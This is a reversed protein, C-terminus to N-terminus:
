KLRLRVGAAILLTGLILYLLTPLQGTRPLSGGASGSPVEELDIEVIKEETSGDPKQIIVTFRDKKTDGSPKYEWHGDPTISVTGGTPPTKLTVTGGSTPIDGSTTKGDSSSDTPNTPTPTPATDGGPAPKTPVATPETSSPGETGGDNTHGPAQANVATLTYIFKLAGDELTDGEAIVVKQPTADKIYGSPAKTETVTYTGYPLAVRATGTADTVVTHLLQGTENAIEFTAGQLARTEDEKARKHLELTRYRANFAEVNLAENSNVSVKIAEKSLHYGEPAEIETLIYTAYRLKDMSLQGNADTKLTGLELTGGDSQQKVIKFVAGAVPKGQDDKKTLTFSGLNGVAWGSSELISHSIRKEMERTGTEVRTGKVHASNSFTGSVIFDEIIRTKYEFTYVDKIVIGERAAIEFSQPDSILARPKVTVEFVDQMAGDLVTGDRRVVFSDEILELGENLTDEIVLNEISSKSENVILTWTIENAGSTRTGDKTIFTTAKPHAVVATYNEGSNTQATNTYQEKSIGMLETSYTIRYAKNLMSAWKIQFSHNDADPTVTIGRAAWDGKPIETAGSLKLSGTAPDVTDEYLRISDPILRLGNGEADVPIADTVTFDKLHKALYNLDIQWDIQRRDIDLTGKKSGNYAFLDKSAVEAQASKLVGAANGQWAFHSYNMYDLNGSNSLVDPDVTTKFDVTYVANNVTKLFTLKFGKIPESGSVAAGSLNLPSVTYDTDKTLASTGAKVVIGNLQDKSLYMGSAAARAAEPLAPDYFTDTIVLDEIAERIPTVTLRWDFSGATYDFVKGDGDIDTSSKEFRNAIPTNNSGTYTYTGLIATNDYTGRDLDTIHARFRVAYAQTGPADSLTVKFGHETIDSVTYKSAELATGLALNGAAKVEVPYISVDASSFGSPLEQGAGLTETLLTETMNQEGLNMYVTWDLYKEGNYGISSTAEKHLPKGFLLDATATPSVVATAEGKVMHTLRAQNEFRLPNVPNKQSMLGDIAGQTVETEVTLTHLVDIDGLTVSLIGTDSDFAVASSDLTVTAGDADTCSVSKYTLGQPLQDTVVVSKLPFTAENVPISWTVVRTNAPIPTETTLTKGILAGFDMGVKAESSSGDLSATNTYSVKTQSVDIAEPDRYSDYIVRYAKGISQGEVEAPITVTLTHAGGETNKEFRASYLSVELPTTGPTKTGDGLVSIPYIKLSDMSPLQRADLADTIVLEGKNKLNVNADITWRIGKKPIEIGSKGVAALTDPPTITLTYTKETGDSLPFTLEYPADIRVTKFDFSLNLRVGGSVGDQDVAKEKFTLTLVGSSLTYQGYNEGEPGLLTGKGEIDKPFVEPLSFTKVANAETITAGNPIAWLVELQLTDGSKFEQPTNPDIPTGDAQKVTIGTIIVPSADAFAPTLAVQPIFSVLLAGILLISLLRHTFHTNSM